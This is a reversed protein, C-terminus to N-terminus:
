LPLFHQKCTHKVDPDPVPDTARHTYKLTHMQFPIIHTVPIM